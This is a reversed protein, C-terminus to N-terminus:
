FHDVRLIVELKHSEGPACTIANDAANATEVCIMQKWSEPDMDAMGSTKEMWPNWVVTSDSGTKEIVIRRQWVPDHIVCTAKTNVHVQDTEKTLRIPDNGQQKRKFEDTKDIYTTGELGSLWVQRVDAVSFYTHLAEEFTFAEKGDNAVRLEMGLEAGVSVHFSLQFSPFFDRTANNPRLVLPVEVSGDDPQVMTDFDWVM